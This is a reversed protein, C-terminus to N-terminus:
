KNEKKCDTKSPKPLVVNKERLIRAWEREHDPGDMEALGSVEGFIMMNGANKMLRVINDTSADVTRGYVVAAALGLTYTGLYHLLRELSSDPLLRLMPDAKMRELISAFVGAVIDAHNHRTHFLSAFLHGEERAFVVIGVGINLFAGDTWATMTSEHLRRRAENLIDRELSEMSGYTSYVPAVSSRLEAAVTRASLVAWGKKRVIKVAATLVAAKDFTTEKPSM